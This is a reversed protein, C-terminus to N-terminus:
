SAFLINDLLRYLRWLFLLFSLFNLFPQFELRSLHEIERKERGRRSKKRLFHCNMWINIKYIIGVRMSLDKWQIKKFELVCKTLSISSNSNRQQSLSLSTEGIVFNLFTSSLSASSSVNWVEVSTSFHNWEFLWLFHHPCLTDTSQCSHTSDSKPHTTLLFLM